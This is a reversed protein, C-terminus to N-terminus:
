LLNLNYSFHVLHYNSLLRPQESRWVSVDASEPCVAGGDSRDKDTDQGGSPHSPPQHQCAPFAM